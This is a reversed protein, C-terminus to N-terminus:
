VNWGSLKLVYASSQNVQSEPNRTATPIIEDASLHLHQCCQYAKLVGLYCIVSLIEHLPSELATSM